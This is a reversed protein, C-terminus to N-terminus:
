TYVLDVYDPHRGIWAKVFPCLPMVRREGAARVQDLARRVLVTGVGHGEWQPFVETHTFVILDPVLQYEAFGALQGDIRGEFRSEKTNDVVEVYDPSM